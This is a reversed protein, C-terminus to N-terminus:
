SRPKRFAAEVDRSGHLVREIIVDDGALSYFIVYNRFSFSRLGKKIESRSRGARPLRALTVFRETLKDIFKDAREVSDTAIFLWIEDLDAEALPTAKVGRIIV